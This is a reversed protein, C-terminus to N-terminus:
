NTTLSYEAYKESKEGSIIFEQLSNWKKRIYNDNEHIVYYYKKLTLEVFKAYKLILKKLEHKDKELLYEILEKQITDPNMLRLQLYLMCFTVCMGDHADAKSQLGKLPSIDFPSLYTFDELDVIRMLRIKIADNINHELEKNLHGYPEFREITKKHLDIVLINAHNIGKNKSSDIMFTCYVFRVNSEFCNKIKDRLKTPVIIEKTDSYYIISTVDIYEKFKLVFKPICVIENFNYYNALITFFNFINSYSQYYYNIKGKDEVPGKSMEEALFDNISIFKDMKESNTSRSLKKSTKKSQKKSTKTYKVIINKKFKKYSDYHNM